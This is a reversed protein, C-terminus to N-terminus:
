VKELVLGQQSLFFNRSAPASQEFPAGVIFRGEILGVFQEFFQARFAGQPMPQLAFQVIQPLQLNRSLAVALGCAIAILAAVATRFSCVPVRGPRM